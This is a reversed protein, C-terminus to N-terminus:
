PPATSCARSSRRASTAARRSRCATSSISCRRMRFPTASPMTRAAKPFASVRRSPRPLGPGDRRHDGAGGLDSPLPVQMLARAGMEALRPDPFVICARAAKSRLRDRRELARRRCLGAVRGRDRGRRAAQVADPAQRARAGSRARCRASLRRREQCRLLRVPDQGAADAARCLHRPSDGLLAM